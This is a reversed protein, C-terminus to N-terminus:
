RIERDKEALLREHEKRLRPMEAGSVLQRIRERLAKNEYQLPTAYEFSVKM